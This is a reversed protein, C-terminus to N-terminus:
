SAPACQSHFPRPRSPRRNRVWIKRGPDPRVRVQVIALFVTTERSGIKQTKNQSVHKNTYTTRPNPHPPPPPLVGFRSHSGPEATVVPIPSFMLDVRGHRNGSITIATLLRVRAERGPGDQQQFVGSHMPTALTKTSNCTTRRACPREYDPSQEVKNWPSLQYQDNL